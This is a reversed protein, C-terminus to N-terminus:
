SVGIGLAGRVRGINILELYVGRLLGRYAIIKLLKRTKGTTIEVL